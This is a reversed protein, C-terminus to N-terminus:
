ARNQKQAWPLRRLQRVHSRATQSGQSFKHTKRSGKRILLCSDAVGILVLICLPYHGHLKNTTQEEETLGRRRSRSAVGVTSLGTRLLLHALSCSDLFCQGRPFCDKEEVSLCPFFVPIDRNSKWSRLIKNASSPAYSRLLLSFM